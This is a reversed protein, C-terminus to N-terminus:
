APKGTSKRIILRHALVNENGPPREGEILDILLTAATSGIQELPQAVTTLPPSTYEGLAIGDVSIVSIDQPVQYGLERLAHLAGFAALDGFCFIATPRERWQMLARAGLDGSAMSYDGHYVWNTNVTLQQQQLADTFGRMRQDSSDLGGPGALAAIRTHGLNLLHETAQKGIQYNNVGVKIIEPLDCFESANVIPPLRRVDGGVSALDFPIRASNTIIGDVQRTHVMAAFTRELDPNDQTDNLIVSYGRRMATQEISRVVPAFYPNTIDPLMVAIHKSRGQRLSSALKNPTYGLEAVVELVKDRTKASVRQPNNLARSVTAKCVGARRAIDQMAVADNLSKVAM